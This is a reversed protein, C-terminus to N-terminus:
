HTTLVEKRVNSPVKDNYKKFVRTFHNSSNYGVMYAIEKISLGTQLILREAEKLRINNLYQKFSMNFEQQLYKSIQRDSKGVERMVMKLSLEPNQYEKGIFATLNDCWSDRRIKDIDIREYPINQGAIIHTESQAFFQDFLHYINKM